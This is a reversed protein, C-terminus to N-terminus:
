IDGNEIIKEDELEAVKRRYFELKVCELLGVLENANGYTRYVGNFLGWIVSSLFYNKEGSSLPEMESVVNKILGDLRQRKEKIIYPM